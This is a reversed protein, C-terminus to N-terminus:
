PKLNLIQSIFSPTEPYPNLTSAEPKLTIPRIQVCVRVLVKRMKILGSPQPDLAVENTWCGRGLRQCVSCLEQRHPAGGEAREERPRRSSTTTQWRWSASVEDMCAKCQQTEPEDFAHASKWAVECNECCFKGFSKRQTVECSPRWEGQGELAGFPAETPCEYWLEQHPMPSPAGVTFRESCEPCTFRNGGTLVVKWLTTCCPCRVKIQLWVCRTLTAPSGRVHRLSCV